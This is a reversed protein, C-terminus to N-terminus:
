RLMVCVGLKSVGVYQVDASQCVYSCASPIKRVPEAHSSGVNFVNGCAFGPRVQFVVSCVGRGGLAADTTCPWLDRRRCGLVFNILGDDLALRASCRSPVCKMLVVPGNRAACTTQGM